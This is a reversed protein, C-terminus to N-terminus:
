GVPPLGMLARVWNSFRVVGSLDRDLWVAAYLMGVCLAVTYAPFIVFMLIVIGISSSRRDYGTGLADLEVATRYADRLSYLWPVFLAPSVALLVLTRSTQGNLALAWPAVWVTAFVHM